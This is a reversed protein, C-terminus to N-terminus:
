TMAAMTPAAPRSGVSAAARAPRRPRSALLSDSSQAPGSRTAAARRWPASSTGISRSFLAMKWDRGANTGAPRRAGPTRRMRSVQEPPGNRRVGASASASTVGSCATAWGLHLMPRFIETSEAVSIFLPRSNISAQRSNPTPGSATSTTTWGCLTMWESTSYTSPETSACSPLGSMRVGIAWASPQGSRMSEPTSDRSRTRIPCSPKSAGSRARKGQRRRARAAASAPPVAGATAFAAFSTATAANRSPRSFKAPMGATM